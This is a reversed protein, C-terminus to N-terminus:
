VHKWLRRALIAKITSLSVGFQQALQKRPKRRERIEKVQSEKLISGHVKEGRWVSEPHLHTGHEDGKAARGKNAMDKSNDAPTGLSLHAPNVCARNDCSHMVVLGDPIEGHHLLYSFRHARYTTKNLYFQGYGQSLIVGQWLWCTDTKKVFKWFSTTTNPPKPMNPEM